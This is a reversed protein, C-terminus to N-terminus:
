SSRLNCVKLSSKRIDVGSHFYLRAVTLLEYVLKPSSFLVFCCVSALDIFYFPAFISREQACCM